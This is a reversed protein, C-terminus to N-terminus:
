RPSRSPLFRRAADHQWRLVADNWAEPFPREDDVTCWLTPSAPRTPIPAGPHTAVVTLMGHTTVLLDLAHLDHARPRGLVAVLVPHTSIPLAAATLQDPGGAELEALADLLAGLGRRGPLDLRRGSTTLVQFPRRAAELATAISAVAEIAVEFSARDHSGERVDLLVVAPARRRSEEQRIMLTDRRATSRWHVRRLDDGVAYERLTLFEGSVEPRGRLNPADRDLDDGGGEPPPLVHHVRPHVIVSDTGGARWSVLTLGFPDDISATAPGLALRGRRETPMRYAATASQGPELPPVAFRATRRGGDLDETISLTPSRRTGDNTVTLEVRGEDGAGLREPAERAVSVRRARTRTWLTAGGLLLGAQVGLVVLQVLGVIRGGVYLGAAAGLLAWGRRTPM